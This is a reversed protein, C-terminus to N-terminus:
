GEVREYLVGEFLAMQREISQVLAPDEVRLGLEINTTEASASFNASTVLVIRHDVAIFKAHNCAIPEGMGPKKTRYVMVGPLDQAIQRTTPKWPASGVDAVGTDVYLKVVVGPRWAAEGLAKWLSSSRQFNYTSCIVATRASRVLEDRTSNLGGNSVLMGPATWIPVAVAEDRRAGEIARLLSVIRERWDPEKGRLAEILSRVASVKAQQVCALAQTLTLGEEIRDAVRRAESRELLAGLRYAADQRGDM